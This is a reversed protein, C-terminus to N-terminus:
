KVVKSAKVSGDTYITKVIVFGKAEASVAKGTLDYYETSLVSKAYEASTIGVGESAYVLYLGDAEVVVAYHVDDGGPLNITAPTGTITGTVGILKITIDSAPTTDITVNLTGGSINLNGTVEVADSADAKINTTSASGLTLDSGFSLYSDTATLTGNVTTAGAISGAGKLTGAAAVTVPVTAGALSGDVVVTGADVNVAGAVYNTSAGLLTLSGTGTKTLTITPVNEWNDAPFNEFVGAFTTNTNLGGITYNIDRIRPGKVISGSTGSLAGVTITSSPNAPNAPYVLVVNDGLNLTNNTFNNTSGFWAESVNTTVNISGSAFTNNLIPLGSFAGAGTASGATLLQYNLESLATIASSYTVVSTPILTVSSSGTGSIAKSFAAGTNLNLTTGGAVAYKTAAADRKVTLTGATLEVGGALENIIDLTASAGVIFKGTGTLKGTGSFSYSGGSVTINQAALNLGGTLSVTQNAGTADFIISNGNQYAISPDGGISFNADVENWLANAAGTWGYNGSAVATGKFIVDISAGAAVTVSESGTAAADYAYYVGGDIFSVKDTDLLTYTSGLEQDKAMRATKVPSGGVGDLYNITVDATGASEEYHYIQFNDVRPKWSNADGSTRNFRLFFTKLLGASTNHFDLGRNEYTATGNTIKITDIKHTTFNLVAHVNVWTSRVFSGGTPAVRIAANGPDTDINVTNDLNLLHLANGTAGQQSNVSLGLILNDNADQFRFYGGSGANSAPTGLWWDFDLSLTGETSLTLTGLDKSGTRAGSGNGYTQLGNGSTGGTTEITTQAQFQGTIGWPALADEFDENIDYVRVLDAASVSVVGVALLLLTFLKKM